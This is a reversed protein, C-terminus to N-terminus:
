LNQVTCSRWTFSVFNVGFMRNELVFKRIRADDGRCIRGSCFVSLDVVRWGIVLIVDALIAELLGESRFMSFVLM